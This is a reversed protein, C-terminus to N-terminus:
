VLCVYRRDANFIVHNLAWHNEGILVRFDGSVDLESEIKVAVEIVEALEVIIILDAETLDDRSESWIFALTLNRECTVIESFVEM